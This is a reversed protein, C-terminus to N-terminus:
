YKGSLHSTLQLCYMGAEHDNRMLGYIKKGLLQYLSKDFNLWNGYRKQLKSSSVGNRFNKKMMGKINDPFSHSVVVDPRYQLRAGHRLARWLLDVDEANNAFWVDFGKLELLLKRKYACNATIFAGCMTREKIYCSEAPYPLIEQLMVRSWFLEIPSRSDCPLMIGSLGDLDKQESFTATIKELWDSRAICDADTFVIVDGKAALIGVNRGGAAHREPNHLVKAGIQAAIEGTRDKSMGDVVFLEEPQVTGAKISELCRRIVKEENLAPIVVSVKVKDM